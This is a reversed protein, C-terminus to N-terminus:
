NANSGIVYIDCDLEVRFSNVCREWGDEEQMEDFFLYVKGGIDAARKIVEDHLAKATCLHAYNMNEFNYAIFKSEDTGSAKLEERVLELMVSKGSRRMGTMVKILDNGIFPRIRRM